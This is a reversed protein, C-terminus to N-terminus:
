ITLQETRSEYRGVRELIPKIADGELDSYDTFSKISSALIALIEGDFDCPFSANLELNQLKIFDINNVFFNVIEVAANPEKYFSDDMVAVNEMLKLRESKLAEKYNSRNIILKKSGWYKSDLTAQYWSRYTM